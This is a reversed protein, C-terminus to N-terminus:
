LKKENEAIAKAATNWPAKAEGGKPSLLYTEPRFLAMIQSTAPIRTKM